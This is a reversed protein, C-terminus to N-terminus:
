YAALGSAFAPLTGGFDLAALSGDGQVTFAAIGSNGRDLVYLYRGKRDIAMDLPRSAPGVDGAISRSLTIEVDRSVAYSSISSSGANAM